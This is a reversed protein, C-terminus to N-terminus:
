GNVAELAQADTVTASQEIPQINTLSLAAELNSQTPELEIIPMGTMKYTSESTSPIKDRYKEKLENVVNQISM